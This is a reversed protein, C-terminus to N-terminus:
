FELGGDGVGIWTNQYILVVLGVPILLGDMGKFCGVGVGGSVDKVLISKQCPRVACGVWPGDVLAVTM